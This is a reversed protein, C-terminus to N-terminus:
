DSCKSEHESSSGSNNKSDSPLEGYMKKYRAAFEGPHSFNYKLALVAVSQDGDLLERRVHNLRIRTFYQQPSFGTVKKFQYYLNRRGLGSLEVMEQITISQSPNAHFYDVLRNVGEASRSLKSKLVGRRQCASTNPESEVTLDTMEEVPETGMKAPTGPLKKTQNGM